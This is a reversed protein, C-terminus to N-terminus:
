PCLGQTNVLDRVVGAIALSAPLGPSAIGMLNLFRPADMAIHFDRFGQGPGQLKPRVGTDDPLLDNRDIALYRNVAGHFEDLWREEFRYDVDDVYWANPGFRVEGALNVTLHIGLFMGTPDPLPYVLHPFDRLKTTKYYEAKCWHINLNLADLDLGALRAVQACFLGGANVVLNAAYEEGNDFRVLWGNDRRQMGTVRMDYVVFAGREEANEALRKMYAHTDFIGTSPVWMGAVARVQPVRARCEAASLYELGMVGNNVGNDHLTKLAPLEDQSTAVVLKGCRKHHIGHEECFAYLLENGRVCLNTKLSGQPYYIGSHIVESNRSSTHRGFSSEQEAVVVDSYHAALEHAIALGVAGAGVVLINVQEM